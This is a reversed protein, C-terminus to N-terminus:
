EEFLLNFITGEEVLWIDKGGASRFVNRFVIQDFLIGFRYVEISPTSFAHIRKFILILEDGIIRYVGTACSSSDNSRNFEFEYDEKIIVWSFEDDTIYTGLSLDYSKEIIERLRNITDKQKAATIHYVVDASSMFKKREYYPDDFLLNGDRLVIIRGNSEGLEIVYDFYVPYDPEYNNHIDQLTIKKVPIDSLLKVLPQVLNIDKTNSWIDSIVDCIAEAEWVPVTVTMKKIGDPNLILDSSTAIQSKELRKLDILTRIIIRNFSYEMEESEIRYYYSKDGELYTVLFRNADELQSLEVQQADSKYLTLVYGSTKEEPEVVQLTHFAKNFDLLLAEFEQLSIAKSDADSPLLGSDKRYKWDSCSELFALEDFELKYPGHVQAPSVGIPDAELRNGCGVMLVGLVSVILLTLVVTNRLLGCGKKKNDPM